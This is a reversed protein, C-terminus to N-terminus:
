NYSNINRDSLRTHGVKAGYHAQHRSGSSFIWCCELCDIHFEHKVGRYGGQLEKLQDSDLAKGKLDLDM